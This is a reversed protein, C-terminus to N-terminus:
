RILIESKIAEEAGKLLCHIVQLDDPSVPVFRFHGDGFPAMQGLMKQVHNILAAAQQKKKM